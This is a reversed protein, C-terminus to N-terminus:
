KIWGNYLIVPIVVMIITLIIYCGYNDMIVSYTKHHHESVGQYQSTMMKEHGLPTIGPSM